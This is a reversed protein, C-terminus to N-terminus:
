KIKGSGQTQSQHTTQHHQVAQTSSLTSSVKETERHKLIGKQPPPPLLPKEPPNNSHLEEDKEFNDLVMGLNKALGSVYKHLKELEEPNRKAEHELKYTENFIRNVSKSVNSSLKGRTQEVVIEAHQALEKAYLELRTLFDAGTQQRESLVATIDEASLIRQDEKFLAEKNAQLKLRKKELKANAKELKERKRGKEDEKELKERNKEINADIKELKREIDALDKKIKKRKKTTNGKLAEKVESREERLEQRIESREERLRTAAVQRAEIGSQESHQQIHIIESQLAKALDLTAQKLNCINAYLKSTTQHQDVVVGEEEPKVTFHVNRKLKDPSEAPIQGLPHENKEDKKRRDEFRSNRAM